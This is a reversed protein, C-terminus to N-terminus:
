FRFLFLVKAAHVPVQPLSGASMVKLCDGGGDM